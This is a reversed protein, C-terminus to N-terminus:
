EMHHMQRQFVQLPSKLPEHHKGRLQFGHAVRTEILADRGRPSRCSIRGHLWQTRPELVQQLAQVKDARPDVHADRRGEPDRSEEEWLTEQRGNQLVVGALALEGDVDHREGKHHSVFAHLFESLLRLVAAIHIAEEQLPGPPILLKPCKHVGLRLLQKRGHGGNVHQRLSVSGRGSPVDVAARHVLYEGAGACEGGCSM